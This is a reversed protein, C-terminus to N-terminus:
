LIFESVITKVHRGLIDYISLNVFGNEFITFELNTTPNFPNPYNQNLIFITPYEAELYGECGECEDYSFGLDVAGVGAWNVNTISHINGTYEFNTLVGCGVDLINDDCDTGTCWFGLVHTQNNAADTSWEIAPWNATNGGSATLVDGTVNAFGEPCVNDESCWNIIFEFGVIQNTSHYMVQMTGETDTGLM